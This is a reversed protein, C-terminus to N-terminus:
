DHEIVEKTAAIKKDTWEVLDKIVIKEIVKIFDSMFNKDVQKNKTPLLFEFDHTQSARLKNGFDYKGQLSKEIVAKIFLLPITEREM